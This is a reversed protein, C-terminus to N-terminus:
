RPPAPARLARLMAAPDRATPRGPPSAALVRALQDRARGVEGARALLVAYELQLDPLRDGAPDHRSLVPEVAERAGRWDGLKSACLLFVRCAQLDDPVETLIAAAIGQADRFRGVEILERSLESAFDRILDEFAGRLSAVWPAVQGEPTRPAELIATGPRAAEGALWRRSEAPIAATWWLPDLAGGPGLWADRTLDTLQYIAIAPGEVTGLSRFEAVKTAHADLLAYFRRQVPFRLSDSEYRGRVTSSTLIYDAGSLLRPEYFVQNLEVIHPFLEFTTPAGGALRGAVTAHGLVVLPLNVVHYTRQALFRRQLASDAAAFAKRRSVRRVTAATPLRAGYAEQILLEQPKLHGELWRRAALQTSDAGSSAAVVGAFGVPLIMGGLLATALWPRLPARARAILDFAAMAALLAALPIIPVLYREAELRGLSIPLGFALLSLWLVIAAHRHRADVLTLALSVALLALGFVGLQRALDAAYYGLAPRELNGLHGGRAFGALQSVDAWFARFDLVIFPSTLLFVAFAAAAAAVSLAWARRGHREALVWALPLVLLGAPYKASAALGLLVAASVLASRRGGRRYELLRELAWIALAAMIPDAYIARADLIMAPSLAALAAAVLGAGRRIREGILAIGLVSAGDALVGPLRAALVMPTPDLHYRLFYDAPGGFWGLLHGVGFHLKQILFHLYFTLAPYHFLHPNWDTAGTDWGWMEFARKFPIAEEVFDPLGHRIRWLRLAIAAM